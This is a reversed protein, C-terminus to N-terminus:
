VVGKEKLGKVQPASYGLEALIEATHEGLLPAPATAVDGPALPTALRDVSLLGRHLVQPHAFAEDLALVPECCCDVEAFFAEWYARPQTYFLAAVEARLGAQDPDYQRPVWQPHGVAECFTSWFHPELAALTMYAGDATEYVNYCAQKGTLLMEGRRPVAAGTWWEALPFAMLATISDLLSIDLYRGRGSHERDLLAALVGLATWLAVFLDAVPVGPVVPYGGQAGTLGLLGAVALYGLDHGARRSYPGTQGYGSISAYILRQNEAGLAEYELGLRRMVGPRFGELLVDAGRALDLFIAKGDVAKFNLTVSKKDRNLLNFLANRGNASSSPLHRMPDGRRPEEIKIVEAGLDALTLSAYPGPMWRTLDLVRVGQLPVNLM